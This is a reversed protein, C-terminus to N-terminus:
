LRLSADYSFADFVDQYFVTDKALSDIGSKEGKSFTEASSSAQGQLSDAMKRNLAVIVDQCLPMDGFRLERFLDMLFHIEESTLVQIRDHIWRANKLDETAVELAEKMFPENDVWSPPALGRGRWHNLYTRIYLPLSSLGGEKLQHAVKWQSEAYDRWRSLAELFAEDQHTLQNVLMRPFVSISPDQSGEKKFRIKVIVGDRYSMPLREVVVPAIPGLKEILSPMKKQILELIFTRQAAALDLFLKASPNDAGVIQEMAKDRNKMKIAEIYVTYLEKLRPEVVERLGKKNLADRANLESQSYTVGPVVPKLKGENQLKLETKKLDRLGDAILNAIHSLSVQDRTIKSRSFLAATSLPDFLKKADDSSFEGSSAFVSPVNHTPEVSLDSESCYESQPHLLVSLPRAESLSVTFICVTSLVIAKVQKKM